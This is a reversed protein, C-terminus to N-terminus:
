YKIHSPGFPVTWSPVWQVMRYGLRTIEHTTEYETTTDTGFVCAIFFYITQM